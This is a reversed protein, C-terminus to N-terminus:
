LDPFFLPLFRYFSFCFCLFFFFSSFRSCCSRVFLCVFYFLCFLVFLVFCVFLLWWWLLLLLFFLPAKMSPVRDFLATAQEEIVSM